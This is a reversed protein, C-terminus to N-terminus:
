SNSLYSTVLFLLKSHYSQTFAGTLHPPVQSILSSRYHSLPFIISKMTIWWCRTIKPGTLPQISRNPPIQPYFLYYCKAPGFRIFFLLIKVFLLFCFPQPCFNQTIAVCWFLIPPSSTACKTHFLRFNFASLHVGAGPILGNAHVNSNRRFRRGCSLYWRFLGTVQGGKGKTSDPWDFERASNLNCFVFAEPFFRFHILLSLSFLTSFFFEWLFAFFTFFSSVGFSVFWLSWFSFLSTCMWWNLTDITSFPQASLM